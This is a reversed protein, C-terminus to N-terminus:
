SSLKAGNGDNDVKDGTAGDCNDNINDYAAGDGDHDLDDGMVCDCNVYLQMHASTPM